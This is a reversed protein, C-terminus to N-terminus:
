EELEVQNPQAQNLWNVTKKKDEHLQRVLEDTSEFKKESRLRHYFFVEISKGYIDADFNILHIEVTEHAGNFTPRVGINAMGAYVKGDLEIQVAYVGRGPVLMHPDLLELNATPFGIAKGRGAGRVVKAELSYARALCRNAKEIEGALLLKRILTSSVIDGNSKFPEVHKVFFGKEQALQRLTHVGGERDRGFAHDYGIVIGKFGIREDLIQSVYDVSTLQAFQRTFPIIVLKAIGLERLIKIKQELRILLSIAPKDKRALVLQPHPHFTVLTPIGNSRKAAELVNKIIFRHGLHVGDFTGVTLVNDPDRKVKDLNRYVIM